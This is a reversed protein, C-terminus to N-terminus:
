RTKLLEKLESPDTVPPRCASGICVYAAPKAGITSMNATLEARDGFLAPNSAANRAFLVVSNPLYQKRTETLLANTEPANPDGVIVIQIWNSQM